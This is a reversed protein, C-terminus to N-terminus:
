FFYLLFDGISESLSDSMSEGGGGWGLVYASMCECMQFM